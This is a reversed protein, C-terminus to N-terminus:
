TIEESAPLRITFTSGEDLASRVAITGGMMQCLRATIALGLGTGGYQRTSSSDVQTFAEFLTGLKEAAIGIGTDRVGFEVGAGDERDLRVVTLEIESLVPKLRQAQQRRM